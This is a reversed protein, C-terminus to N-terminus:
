ESLSTNKKREDFDLLLQTDKPLIFRYVLKTQKSKNYSKLWSGRLRAKRKHASHPQTGVAQQRFYKGM